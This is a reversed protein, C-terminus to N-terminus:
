SPTVETLRYVLPTELTKGLLTLRPDRIRNPFCDKDDSILFVTFNVSLSSFFLFCINTQTSYYLIYRSHFLFSPM